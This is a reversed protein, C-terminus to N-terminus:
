FTDPFTKQRTLVVMEAKKSALKLELDKVWNEALMSSFRVKARTVEDNLALVIGALDDTFGILKCDNPLQM